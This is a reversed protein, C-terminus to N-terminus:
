TFTNEQLEPVNGPLLFFLVLQSSNSVSLIKLTGIESICLTINRTAKTHLQIKQIFYTFKRNMNIAKLEVFWTLRVQIKTCQCLRLLHQISSHTHFQFKGLLNFAKKRIQTMHLWSPSRATSSLFVKKTSRNRNEM